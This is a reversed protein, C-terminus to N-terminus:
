LLSLSLIIRKISTVMEGGNQSERENKLRRQKSERARKRVEKIVDDASFPALSCSAPQREIARIVEDSLYKCAGALWGNLWEM